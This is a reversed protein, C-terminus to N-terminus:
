FKIFFSGYTRSFTKAQNRDLCKDLSDRDKCTEFGDNHFLGPNDWTLNSFWKYDWHM